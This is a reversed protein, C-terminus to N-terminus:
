AGPRSRPPAVFELAVGWAVFLVAFALATAAPTDPTDAMASRAPEPPFAAFLMFVALGFLAGALPRRMGLRPRVIQFLLALPVGILAGYVIVEVTGGLSSGTAVGSELAVFRMTLRAAVGLLLGSLAALVVHRGIM